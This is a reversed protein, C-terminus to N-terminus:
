GEESKQSRIMRFAIVNVLVTLVMILLAGAITVNQSRGADRFSNFLYLAPTLTKELPGGGTILYPIEMMQLTGTILNVLMLIFYNRMGPITISFMRRLPGAGDLAAAEYYQRPVNMLGAYMVLSNYGFGGWLTPIIICVYPWLGQTQFSIPEKGLSIFISTLLGGGYNMIFMYIIATVVGSILCPIYLIVKVAGSLRPHIARLVHAFLFSLIIMASVIILIFVLVNKFSGMFSPTKLVYDYNEVAVFAKTNYDQFSRILAMVLPITSFTVLLILAPALMAYATGSYRFRFRNSRKRQLRDRKTKTSM